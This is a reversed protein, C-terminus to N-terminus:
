VPVREAQINFVFLPRKLSDVEMLFPTQQVTVRLYYTGNVTLNVVTYLSRYADEAKSRAAAFDDKVGRSIVQLRPREWKPLTQGGLVDQPQLGQYEIVAVCADPTNPLMQLFLNTGLTGIGATQLRTGIDEM